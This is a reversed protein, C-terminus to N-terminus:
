TWICEKPYALLLCFKSISNLNSFFLLNKESHYYLVDHLMIMIQCFFILLVHKWISKKTNRYLYFLIGLLALLHHIKSPLDYLPTRKLFM